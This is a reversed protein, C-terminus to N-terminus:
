PCSHKARTEMKQLKALRFSNDHPKGTSWMAAGSRWSLICNESGRGIPKEQTVLWSSAKELSCDRVYLRGVMRWQNAVRVTWLFSVEIPPWSYLFTQPEERSTSVRTGLWAKLTRASLEWRPCQLGPNQHQLEQHWLRSRKVNWCCWCRGSGSISHPLPVARKAPAAIKFDSHLLTQNYWNNWSIKNWRCM